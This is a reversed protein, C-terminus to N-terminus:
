SAALSMYGRLNFIDIGFLALVQLSSFKGRQPFNGKADARSIGRREPIERAIPAFNQTGAFYGGRSPGQSSIVFFAGGVIIMNNLLM